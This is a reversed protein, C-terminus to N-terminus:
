LFDSSFIWKHPSISFSWYKPWGIRLVSENSFVRISPSISPQLLLPCCLILHNSPQCWQSSPCSYSCAGPTPSPCPPKAHQLGRTVCPWVRSLSQVSATSTKTQSLTIGELDRWATVFPLIEKKHSFAKGRPTHLVNEKDTPRNISVYSTEKDQSKHIVSCHILAHVHRKSIRNKNRKSIYGSTFHLSLQETM